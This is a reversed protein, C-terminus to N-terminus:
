LFISLLYLLLSVLLTISGVEAITVIFRNKRM